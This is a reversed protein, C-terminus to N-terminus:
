SLFPFKFGASKERTNVNESSRITQAYSERELNDILRSAFAEVFRMYASIVGGYKETTLDFVYWNIMLYIAIDKRTRMLYDIYDDKTFNGQVVQPNALMSAQSLVGQIGVENMLPEGQTIRKTKIRDGDQYVVEISGRLFQEFKLLIPDTNLRIQLATANNFGTNDSFSGKVGYNEPGQEQQYPNM